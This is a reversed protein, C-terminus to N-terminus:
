ATLRAHIDCLVIHADAKTFGVALMDNQFQLEDELNMKSNIYRRIANKM